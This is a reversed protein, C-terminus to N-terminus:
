PRSRFAALRRAATRLITDVGPRTRRHFVVDAAPRGPPAQMLGRYADVGARFLAPDGGHDPHNGRAFRRFAQTVERRTAGPGVGLVEPAPV